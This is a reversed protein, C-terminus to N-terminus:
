RLALMKHYETWPSFSGAQDYVIRAVRMCSRVNTRYDQLGNREIMERHVPEHIQWWCFSQERDGQSFGRPANTSSYVHNSQVM